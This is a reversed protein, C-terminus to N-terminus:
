KEQSPPTNIMQKSDINLFYHLLANKSKIIYIHAYNHLNVM